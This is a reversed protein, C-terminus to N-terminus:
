NTETRSPVDLNVTDDLLTTMPVEHFGNGDNLETAETRPKTELVTDAPTRSSRRSGLATPGVPLDAQGTSALMTAIGSLKRALYAAPGEDTRSGRRAPEPSILDHVLDNVEAPVDPLLDKLDTRVLTGAVIEKALDRASGHSDATLYPPRGTLLFYWTAGISYLDALEADFDRNLLVEPATYHPTGGLAEEQEAKTLVRAFGWDVLVLRPGELVANTPKIDGHTVNMGHAYALAETLQGIHHVSLQLTYDRAGENTDEIWRVLSGPRYQPSATWLYGADAGSSIIKGINKHHLRGAAEVESQWMRHLPSRSLKRRDGGMDRVAKIVVKKDTDLDHAVLMRGFAGRDAGELPELARFRGGFTQDLLEMDESTWNKPVVKDERIAPETFPEALDPETGIKELEAEVWHKQREAEVKTRAEARLRALDVDLSEEIRERALVRDLREQHRTAANEAERVHRKRSSVVTIDYQTRGRWIKLLLPILDLLVGVVIIALHIVGGALNQRTFDFMARLKAPIGDSLKAASQALGVDGKIQEDLEDIRRNLRDRNGNWAERARGLAAEAEAKERDRVVTKDGDGGAGTVKGARILDECGKPDRECAAIRQAEFAKTEATQLETELTTREGRLRNLEEQRATPNDSSGTVLETSQNVQTSITDRMTREIDDRFIALAGAQAVLFGLLVACFGRVLFGTLTKGRSEEPDVPKAAIARDFAAVFLGWPVTYPLADAFDETVGLGVAALALTGWAIFGNLLVFFGSLQYSSRDHRSSIGRWSAGGLWAFGNGLWWLPVLPWRPKATQLVDESFTM